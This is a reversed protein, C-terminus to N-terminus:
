NVYTFIFNSLLIIYLVECQIILFYWHGWSTGLAPTLHGEGNSDFKTTMQNTVVVKM